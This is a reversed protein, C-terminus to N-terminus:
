YSDDSDYGAYGSIYYYEDFFDDSDSDFGMMGHFDNDGSIDSDGEMEFDEDIVVRDEPIWDPVHDKDDCRVKLSACYAMMEKIVDEDNEPYLLEFNFIQPKSDPQLEKVANVYDAAFVSHVTSLGRKELFTRKLPVDVM